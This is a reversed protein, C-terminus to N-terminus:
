LKREWHTKSSFILTNDTMKVTNITIIWFTLKMFVALSFENLFLRRAKEETKGEARLVTGEFQIGKIRNVRKEQNSITGAIRNNLLFCRSHRTDPDSVFVLEMNAPDFAYWLTAIWPTESDCVAVSMVHHKEIFRLVPEPLPNQM